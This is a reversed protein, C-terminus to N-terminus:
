VRITVIEVSLRSLVLSNRSPSPAWHGLSELWSSVDELPSGLRARAWDLLVASRKGTVERILVNGSHVDGHLVAQGLPSSSMLQRRMGPLAAVVRRLAPAQQRLSALAATQLWTRRSWSAAFLEEL